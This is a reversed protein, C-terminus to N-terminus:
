KLAEIVGNLRRAKEEEPLSDWDEPLNLAGSPTGAKMMRLKWDNAEKESDCLVSGLAMIGSLVGFGSDEQRTKLAELLVNFEAIMESKNFLEVKEEKSWRKRGTKEGERYLVAVEENSRLGRVANMMVTQYDYSEWTRNIYHCKTEYVSNGNLFVETFHNFGDRCKGFRNYFSYKRSGIVYEIQKSM